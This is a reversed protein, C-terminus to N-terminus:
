HPSFVTELEELTKGKTEKVKKLIFIFGISCIAAYV